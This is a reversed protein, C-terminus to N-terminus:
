RYYAHKAKAKSERTAKQPKVPECKSVQKTACPEESSRVTKPNMVRGLFLVTGTARDRILFIFPRNVTVPIPDKSPGSVPVAVATAAAAETGREDVSVFAKHVVASIHLERTGTMGSFDANPGFADPMGMGALTKDLSFESEFKFLPMTLTIHDIEIDDLIRDLAESNLSDEVEGFKGEDPLLITMSMEGRSYPLEVAQYGERRAYGYFDDSTESMMPTRVGGGEALHFPREQTLGKDFPWTWSANFYIANTLVLRTFSDVTGTPLLDMVKGRTEESVWENIRTRSEEPAGAFDLPRLGSGYHGALVGLFDPLFEYGHQGWIANAINLQFFQNEEGELSRGRSALERDLANFSPHLRAQPFEYHLTNMMQRETEGKAGALTMALAQSISFPSFFLNGESESLVRYLELAFANNGQALTRLDRASARPSGNRERESRVEKAPTPSPMELAPTPKTPQPLATGSSTPGPNRETTPTPLIAVPSTAPTPTRTTAPNTTQPAGTCGAVVALLLLVVALPWTGQLIRRGNTTDFSRAMNERDPM